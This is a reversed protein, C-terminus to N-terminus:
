DGGGSDDGDPRVGHAFLLFDYMEDKRQNEIKDIEEHGPVNEVRGTALGLAVADASQGHLVLDPHQAVYQEAILTRVRFDIQSRPDPPVGHTNQYTEFARILVSKGTEAADKLLGKGPLPALDVVGWLISNRIEKAQEADEDIEHLNDHLLTLVESAQEWVQYLNESRMGSGNVLTRLYKGSEEAFALAADDNPSGDPNQTAFRLLREQVDKPAHLLTPINEGVARAIGSKFADPVAEPPISLFVNLLEKSKGGDPSGGAAILNNLAKANDGSQLLSSLGKDAVLEQFRTIDPNGPARGTLWDAAAGHNHSIANLV